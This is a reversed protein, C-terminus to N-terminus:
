KKGVIILSQGLPPNIMSEIKQMISVVIKLLLGTNKPLNRIKLIKGAIFWWIIGLFNFYRIYEIKFKSQLLKDTINNKSYRRFHGFAIDLSGYIKPCSPIFIIIRGANPLVSYINGIALQDKRIHELVNICIVTDINMKKLNKLTSKDIKTIDLYIIKLKKKNIYKERIIKLYNDNVDSAILFKNDDYNKIMTGIGSGIELIRNQIYPKIISYIWKSYVDGIELENFGFDNIIIEKQIRKM